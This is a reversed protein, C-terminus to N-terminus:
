RTPWARNVRLDLRLYDAAPGRLAERAPDGPRATGPRQARERLARAHVALRQALRVVRQVVLARHALDPPRRRREAPGASQPALPRLHAPRPQQREPDDDRGRGRGFLRLRRAGHPSPRDAPRLLVRRGQQRQPRPVGRHPGRQDGPVRRDGGELQPVGAAPPHRAELLGRGPDALGQERGARPGRDMARVDRLPLLGDRQQAHRRQRHGPDAPLLGLRPAREHRPRPELGREGAPELGPRRDLDGPRVAVGDELVLPDVVRLRNSVYAAFLSGSDIFHTNMVIPFKGPPPPEPDDPDQYVISQSKDDDHQRRFDVGFSLIDRNSFGQTWDQAAGFTSYTRDNKVYYFPAVQLVDREFGERARTALGRSLMSRVTTRPGLTSRPTTWVYSTATTTTRMSPPTSPTWSAPPPSSATSM